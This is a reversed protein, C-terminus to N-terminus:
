TLQCSQYAYYANYVDYCTFNRAVGSGVYGSRNNTNWASSTGGCGVHVQYRGGNLLSKSYSAQYPPRNTTNWSAWGSGGSEAQIWVGVVNAQSVCTVTGYATTAAHAVPATVLAGGLATALAFFVAAFRRRSSLIM